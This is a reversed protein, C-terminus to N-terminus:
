PQTKTCTFVLALPVNGAQKLGPKANLVKENPYVEEEEFHLGSEALIQRYTEVSRTVVPLRLGAAGPMTLVGRSRKLLGRRKLSNVFDPHTVTILFLGGPSLVRHCKKAAEKFGKNSVENFVFSVLILDISRDEFPYPQRVDLVQYDAAPVRFREEAIKLLKRSCDTIVVSAPRQGSHRQMLLPIFYGNGAGLELIARDDIEPIKELLVDNLVHEKFAGGQYGTATHWQKAIQNYYAM